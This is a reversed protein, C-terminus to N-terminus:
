AGGSPLCKRPRKVPGRHLRRAKAGPLAATGGRPRGRWSPGIAARRPICATTAPAEATRPPPARACHPRRPRPRRRRRPSPSASQKESSTATRLSSVTRPLPSVRGAAARLRGAEAAGVARPVSSLRSENNEALARCRDDSCRELARRLQRCVDGFGGAYREVAGVDEETAAARCAEAYVWCAETMDLIEALVGPDTPGDGDTDGVWAGEIEHTFYHEGIHDPDSRVGRTRNSRSSNHNQADLRSTTAWGDLEIRRGAATVTPPVNRVDTRVTRYLSREAGAGPLESVGTYMGAPSAATTGIAESAARDVVGDLASCGALAGTVLVGGAALLTRRSVGQAAHRHEHGPTESSQSNM